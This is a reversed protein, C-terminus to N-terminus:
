GRVDLRGGLGTAAAVLEDGKTVVRGAAEILQVTSSGRVREMELLRKAVAIQVRGVVEAHKFGAVATVLDMRPSIPEVGM